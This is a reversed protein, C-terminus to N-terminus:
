AGEEVEFTDASHRWAAGGHDREFREIAVGTSDHPHVAPSLYVKGVEVDRLQGASGSLRKYFTVRQPRCKPFGAQVEELGVLGVLRGREDLVPLQKIRHRFMIGLAEETTAELRISLAGASMVDRVPVHNPDMGESLGRVVIDRDSVMGILRNGDVVALCGIQHDRMRKAAATLLAGPNITVVNTRMINRISM